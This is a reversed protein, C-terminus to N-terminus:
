IQGRHSTEQGARSNPSRVTSSSRRAVHRSPCPSRQRAGPPIQELEGIAFLGIRIALAFIEQSEDPV